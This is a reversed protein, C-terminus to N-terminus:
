LRYGNLLPQAIHVIKNKVWNHRFVPVQERELSAEQARQYSEKEVEWGIRDAQSEESGGGRIEAGVTQHAAVQAIKPLDSRRPAIQTLAHNSSGSEKKNQFFLNTNNPRKTRCLKKSPSLRGNTSGLRNRKLCSATVGSWCGSLNIIAIECQYLSIVVSIPNIKPQLFSNQSCRLWTTLLLSCLDTINPPPKAKFCPNASNTYISNNWSSSLWPCPM